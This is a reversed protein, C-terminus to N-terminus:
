ASIVRLHPRPTLPVEQFPSMCIFFIGKTHSSRTDLPLINDRLRAQDPAPRKTDTRKTTLKATSPTEFRRNSKGALQGGM